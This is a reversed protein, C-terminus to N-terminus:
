AAPNFRSYDGFTWRLQIAGDVQVVREIELDVVQKAGPLAAARAPDWDTRARGTVHLLGGTEWDPFVLGARPDLELNGLTMYMMNGSYEPWSLRNPGTVALFGPNGGRHSVDAGVGDAQTALFFTDARAIAAQQADTLADGRHVTRSGAETAVPRRAQIYRPCNAYVQDTSVVIEGGDRHARGNIRMRRRTAADLALMGVEHDVHATEFVGALPDGDGPLRGIVVTRADQATVFGAPGALMTAWMAGDADAAGLVITQQEALFESAVPPIDAGVRSSGLPAVRVGVRNQVAIEGAHHM